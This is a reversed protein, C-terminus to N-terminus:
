STGFLILALGLVLLSVFTLSYATAVIDSRLFPRPAGRRGRGYVIMALAVCLVIIGGISSTM